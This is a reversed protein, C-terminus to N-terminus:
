KHGTSYGIIAIASTSSIDLKFRFAIPESDLWGRGLCEYMSDLRPGPADIRLLTLLAIEWMKLLPPNVSQDNQTVYKEYVTTLQQM